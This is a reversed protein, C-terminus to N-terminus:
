ASKPAPQVATAPQAHAELYIQITTTVVIMIVPGIIVGLFGFMAVGAFVSLITLASNLHATKPVLHPRLVNDINTIILFHVALIVIGQWIHGTLLMGLGVPIIVIGAGLPIISLVTLVLFMFFFAYHLGCAWLVATGIMGQCAAIIFQGRVMANTMAGMRQLYMTSTQQGLPNLRRFLAIIDNDHLLLNTFIYVYLVINVFFSAVNSASSRILSLLGEGLTSLLQRVWTNVQEGSIQYSGPLHTLINNIYDQAKVSITAVTLPESGSLLGLLAQVQAVTLFLLFGLPIVVVFLSALLTLSAAVGKRKLRKSLWAFLPHFTYAMIASVAIVSFYPWLFYAGFLVAALVAFVLIRHRSVAKQM